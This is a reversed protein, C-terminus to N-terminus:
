DHNRISPADVFILRFDTGLNIRLYQRHYSSIHEAGGGVCDSAGRRTDKNRKIDRERFHPRSVRVTDQLLVKTQALSGSQRALLPVSSHHQTTILVHVWQSLVLLHNSNHEARWDAIM